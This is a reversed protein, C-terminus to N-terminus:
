TIKVWKQFTENKSLEQKTISDFEFGAKTSDSDISKWRCHMYGQVTENDKSLQFSVTSIPVVPSELEVGLGGTSLNLLDGRSSQRGNSVMVDLQLQSPKRRLFKRQYTNLENALHIDNNKLFEIFGESDIPKALIGSIGSSYLKEFSINADGTMIMVPIDYQHKISLALEDGRMEPMFYDTLICDIDKNQKVIALAEVGGGAIVTNFGADDLTVKLVELFEPEDDVLLVKGM